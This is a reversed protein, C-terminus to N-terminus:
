SKPNTKNNFNACKFIHIRIDGVRTGSWLERVQCKMKEWNLTFQSPKTLTAWHNLVSAMFICSLKEEAISNGLKLTFDNAM